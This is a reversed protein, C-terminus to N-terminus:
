RRAKPPLSPSVRKAPTWLHGINWTAGCYVATGGFGTVDFIAGADVVVSRDVELAPGTLFAVVPRSGSAGSTGPYGFIEAGWSLRGTVPRSASFTWVTASKPAVSGDGSRRTYGANIDLELEGFSHSSILLLTFDTTGTGTLKALSGTALKVSPQIAFDGLLPADEAVHWKLGVVFDGPGSHAVSDQSLRVWGPFFDLQLRDGLGIKFLAPISLLTSQPDPRQWQGGIELEIIGPAVTYAHTAVTPREPRAQRPDPPTADQAAALTAAAAFAVALGAARSALRRRGAANSGLM